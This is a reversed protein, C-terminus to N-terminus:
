FLQSENLWEFYRKWDSRREPSISESFARDSIEDVLVLARALAARAEQPEGLFVHSNVIQVYAALASPTGKFMGAAEEYLKLAQRYEQTEFFCDAEYLYALRLYVRELSDLDALGRLEFENIMERFFRRATGFRVNSETRMQEMEGASKAEAIESKLALGSQRYSDALLFRTRSVRGDNPYRVLAEELTAIAGEFDGRRRLVEGLLFLADAFEPALPTFVESEELVIRLTKEAFEDNSSGAAMYCRALPVLARAGDLSRPFRRYCERFADVAQDLEGSLHSLQGVRLLARPVLPHQPREHAFAAFLRAARRREGAQAYLEAARWSADAGVRENLANLQAITLYTSGAEAYAARAADLRAEVLEGSEEPDPEDSFDLHRALETELRALQSLLLTAQEVDDTDIITTVLRAYAVAHELDGSVRLTEALVSLSLRLVDFTVLRRDMQSPMEEIAVRYAAIADDHRELMAYAEAAGIRSAVTYPGRAHAAITDEFFSLAELPRQPGGDELIVRGLLWGTMAHVEDHASLRNRITRLYNESEDYHSTKYLLWAELYAFHDRFAESQFRERNRTLLTPAEDLRGLVDLTYLKREIAWLRLDRRDEGLQALLADILRDLYAPPRDLHQMALEIVRKRVDLAGEVGREIAEEHFAVATEYQSQWEFACGRQFQDQATLSQGLSAAHEYLTTVSEGAEYTFVRERLAVAYYVRALELDIPALQEDTIHDRARLRNGLQLADDYAGSAVLRSLHAVADPLPWAEPPPALRFLSLGLLGLSVVFLPLQWKDGAREKITTWQAM